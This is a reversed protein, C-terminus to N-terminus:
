LTKLGPSIAVDGAAGRLSLYLHGTEALGLRDTIMEKVRIKGAQILELAAAYDAPSGGYSSTLM